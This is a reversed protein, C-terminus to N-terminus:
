LYTILLWVGIGGVILGWIIFFVVTGTEGFSKVFGQIKGTNWIKTPKAFSIYIIFLFYVILVIGLIAWGSM